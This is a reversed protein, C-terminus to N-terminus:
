CRVGSSATLEQIFESPWRLFRSPWSKLSIPMPTATLAPPVRYQVCTNAAGSPGQLTGMLRAFGQPDTRDPGLPPAATTGPQRLQRRRALDRLGAAPRAM